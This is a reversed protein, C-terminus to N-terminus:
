RTEDTVETTDLVQSPREQPAGTANETANRIREAKSVEAPRVPAAAPQADLAQFASRMPEDRQQVYRELMRPDSDGIARLALLADGTSEWVDGALMRRGGHGARRPRKPVGAREEATQLAAWLSQTSYPDDGIPRKRPRRAKPAFGPPLLWPGAYGLRERWELAVEIAMQAGLRLPQTWEKGLKDWPARWTITGMEWRVTGDPTVVVHGLQIDELANLHVVANQRAGQAGAITLGVWARWQRGDAPNLKALIRRWEDASYEPPPTPRDEKAVKFRYLALRNRLLLERGQAWALVRKVDYIVKRITNIAYGQATMAQRFEDAMELTTREAVFEWGWMTAWLRFNETYIEQTRRRLHPFEAAVYKEWLEQLTHAKPRVDGAGTSLKSFLGEAWGRAMDRNEETDPWSETGAIGPRDKEKWQVRVLGLKRDVFVRVWPGGRRGHYALDKRPKAKTM